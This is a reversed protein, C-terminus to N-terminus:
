RSPDDTISDIADEYGEWNDVGQAVLANLKISDQTLDKQLDIIAYMISQMAEKHDIEGHKFEYLALSVRTKLDELTM